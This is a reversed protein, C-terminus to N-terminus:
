LSSKSNASSSVQCKLCELCFWLYSWVCMCACGCVCHFRFVCFVRYNYILLCNLHGWWLVSSVSRLDRPASQSEMKRNNTPPRSFCYHSPQQTIHFSALSAHLLSLAAINKKSHMVLRCLKMKTHYIWKKSWQINKSMLVMNYTSQYWIALVATADSGHSLLYKM